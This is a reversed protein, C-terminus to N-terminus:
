EPPLLTLCLDYFYNDWVTYAEFLARQGESLAAVAADYSGEGEPSVNSAPIEPSSLYGEAVLRRVLADFHEVFGFITAPNLVHHLALPLYSQEHGFTRDGLQGALRRIQGNDIEIRHPVESRSYDLYDGFGMAAVAAHSPHSRTRQIFRYFSHIRPGPRRIMSLYRYPVGLAEGAGMNLHGRVYRLARRQGAPMERLEHLTQDHIVAQPQLRPERAFAEALTTGATKPIHLHVLVPPRRADRDAKLRAYKQDFEDSNLFAARLDPLSTAQAQMQAVEAPSPARNLLLRYGIRVQAESLGGAGGQGEAAGDGAAQGRAVARAALRASRDPRSAKEPRPAKAPRPPKDPRAARAARAKREPRAPTDTRDADAEGTEGPNQETM